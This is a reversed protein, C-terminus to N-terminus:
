SGPPKPRVMDKLEQLHEIARDAVRTMAEAQSRRVIDALEKMDALAKQYAERTTQATQAPAAGPSIGGPRKSADQINRMAETLMETQKRLLAQLGEYAARNADVLAEVDKRGSEVIASVDVGPVKFRELISKFDAFLNSQDAM